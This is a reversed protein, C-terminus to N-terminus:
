DMSRIGQAGGLVEWKLIAVVFTFFNRQQLKKVTHDFVRDDREGTGM